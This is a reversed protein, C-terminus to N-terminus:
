TLGTGSVTWDDAVWQIVIAVGGPALVADASATGGNKTLSVGAGRTITLNGTGKNRIVYQGGATIPTTAHPNITAAAVGGTYIIGKGREADAFTFAGTKTITAIDLAGLAGLAEWATTEGTGGQAIAIPFTVGQEDTWAKMDAMLQQLADDVDARAMGPGIPIGNLSVNLSPTSYYYSPLPM